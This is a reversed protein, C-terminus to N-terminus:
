KVKRTKTTAAPVQCLLQLPNFLLADNVFVTNFQYITFTTKNVIDFTHFSHAQKLNLNQAINKCLRVKPVTPPPATHFICNPLSQRMAQTKEPSRAYKKQVHGLSGQALVRFSFLM